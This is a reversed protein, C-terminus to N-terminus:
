IRDLLAKRGELGSGKWEAKMKLEEPNKCVLLTPLFHLRAMNKSRRTLQTRLVELAQLNQKQELLEFYQQEYICYEITEIESPSIKLQNLSEPINAFDGQLM